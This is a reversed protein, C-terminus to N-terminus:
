LLCGVAPQMKIIACKKTITFLKKTNKKVKKYIIDISYIKHRIVQKKNVPVKFYSLIINATCDFFGKPQM